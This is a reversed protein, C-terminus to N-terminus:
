RNRRKVLLAYWLGVLMGIVLSRLSITVGWTEWPGAIRSLAIPVSLPIIAWLVIRKMM